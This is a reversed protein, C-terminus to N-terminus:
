MIFSCIKTMVTYIKCCNTGAIDHLTGAIQFNKYLLTVAIYM